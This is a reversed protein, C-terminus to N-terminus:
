LPSKIQLRYFITLDFLTAKYLICTGDDNKSLQIKQKGTTPAALPYRPMLSNQMNNGAVACAGATIVAAAASFQSPMSPYQPFQAQQYHHQQMAM